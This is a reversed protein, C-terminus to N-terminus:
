PWASGVPVTANIASEVTSHRRRLRICEPDGERAQDAASRKGKEAPRGPRSTRPARAPKAPSHFGQDLSVSVLQPFRKRTEDVMDVAVQDDTLKAM